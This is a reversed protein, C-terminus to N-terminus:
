YLKVYWNLLHVRPPTGFVELFIQQGINPSGNLVFILTKGPLYTERLYRTYEESPHAYIYSPGLLSYACLLDSSLSHTYLLDSSLSHTYLLDSTLAFSLSRSLSLFHTQTSSLFSSITKYIHGICITIIVVLRAESRQM